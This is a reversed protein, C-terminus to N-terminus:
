ITKRLDTFYISQKINEFIQEEILALFGGIKFRLIEILVLM